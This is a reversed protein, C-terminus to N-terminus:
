LKSIWELIRWGFICVGIVLSIFAAIFPAGAAVDKAIKADPNFEKYLMDLVVEIATNIMESVLVLGISFIILLFEVPTIKFFIGAFIVVFAVSLHIKMNRETHIAHLVGDLAHSFSEAVSKCKM